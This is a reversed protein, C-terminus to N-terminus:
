RVVVAWKSGRPDSTTANDILADRSFGSTLLYEVGTGSWCLRPGHVNTLRSPNLLLVYPRPREARPLRLHFVADEPSYATPTVWCASPRGDLYRTADEDVLCHLLYRHGIQQSVDDVLPLEEEPTSRHFITIGIGELMDRDLQSALYGSTGV